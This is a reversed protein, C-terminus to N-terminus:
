EYLINLIMVEARLTWKKALYTEHQETVIADTKRCRQHVGCFKYSLTKHIGSSICSLDYGGEKHKSIDWKLILNIEEAKKKEINRDM